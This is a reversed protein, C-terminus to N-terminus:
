QYDVTWTVRQYCKPDPGIACLPDEPKCHALSRAAPNTVGLRDRYELRVEIRDLARYRRAPIIFNQFSENVLWDFTDSGPQRVFWKFARQTPRAPPPLPDGDDHVELVAFDRQLQEFGLLKGSTDFPPNTVKICPPHDKAQLALPKAARTGGAETISLDAQYSGEIPMQFCIKVGAPVAGTCPTHALEAGGPGTVKWTFTVMEHPLFDNELGAALQTESFIPVVVPQAATTGAAVATVLRILPEGNIPKAVPLHALVPVDFEDRALVAVCFGQRPIRPRYTAPGKLADVITGDNMMAKARAEDCGSAMAWSFRASLEPEDPYSATFEAEQGSVVMAPARLDLRPDAVTVTHTRLARAGRADKAVVWVCAAPDTGMIRLMATAGQGQSAVMEAQAMTAPCDRGTRWDLSTDGQGDNEVSVMFMTHRGRRVEAPGSISIRPPVNITDTFLLCGSTGCIVLGLLSGYLARM